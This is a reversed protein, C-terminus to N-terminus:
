RRCSLLSRIRCGVAGAATTPAVGSPYLRECIEVPSEQAVSTQRNVRRMTPKPPDASCGAELLIELADAKGNLVAWHVPTRFWRDPWDFNIEGGKADVHRISGKELGEKWKELLFKLVKCHGARAACHLVTQKNGDKMTIPVGAELLHKVCALRNEDERNLAETNNNDDNKSRSQGVDAKTTTTSSALHIPFSGSADPSNPKCGKHLLKRVVTAMGRSCALHLPNSTFRKKRELRSSVKSLRGGHAGANPDVGSDLLGNAITPKELMICELLGEYGQWAEDSRNSSNDEKTVTKNELDDAVAAGAGAGDDSGGSCVNNKDLWDVYDGMTKAKLLHTASLPGDLSGFSGGLFRTNEVGHHTAFLTRAVRTAALSDGGLMAFSAGTTLITQQCPQLNLFDILTDSVMKGAKGYQSLLLSPSSQTTTISNINNNDQQHQQQQQELLTRLPICESPKPLQRKDRKGTPSLPTQEVLIFCSPMVRSRQRCRLRFILALAGDSILVGKVTTTTTISPVRRWDIGIEKCSEESLVCYANLQKPSGEDEPDTLHTNAICDVVLPQQQQQQQQVSNHDDDDDDYDGIMLDDIVSNEVEDLEIRVGNIKVM